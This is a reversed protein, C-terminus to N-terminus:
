PTCVQGRYEQLFLGSGPGVNDGVGLTTMSGSAGAYRGAGGVIQLTLEVQYFGKSIFEWHADGRMFLQNGAQTVFVNNTTVHLNGNLEPAISTIFATTAGELTGDVNGLVRGAPDNPASAGPLIFETFKGSVPECAAEVPLAASLVVAFCVAGITFNSLTM